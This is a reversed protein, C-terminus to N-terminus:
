SINKYYEVKGEKALDTVKNILEMRRNLDISSFSKALKIKERIFSENEAGTILVSVPLSWVFYLAEEMSLREPIIPKETEWQVNNLSMKKGFFRGDAMTKMALIGLNRDLAIPLVTNIFHELNADVVNIPMQITEFFPNEQTRELVRLHAKPNQHGTFGVHKVKGEEKAKMVVDFVGNEIRSDVDAPDSVAHVQWLDLYDTNLRKLSADLHEQMTKADKATSKTMLFIEERYKPTLYKGYRIESTHPGYSEASDFFRVGGELAAEIVAQADRETTWGIHYGGVGLMTVEVGTKGLKRKPLVYGWKDSQHSSGFSITSVPVMIGATLGSIKRLFSRRREM